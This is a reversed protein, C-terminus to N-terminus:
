LCRSLKLYEGVYGLEYSTMIWSSTEIAGNLDETITVLSTTAITIEVVVLFLILGVSDMIDDIDFGPEPIM